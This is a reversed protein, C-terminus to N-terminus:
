QIAQLITEVKPYAYIGNTMAETPLYWRLIFSYEVRGMPVAALQEELEEATDLRVRILYKGLASGNAIGM